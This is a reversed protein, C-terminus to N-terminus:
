LLPDMPLQIRGVWGLQFWIQPIGSYGPAAVLGGEFFFGYKAHFQYAPGVYVTDIAADDFRMRGALLAVRHEGRTPNVFRYGPALQFGHIDPSWYMGTVNMGV